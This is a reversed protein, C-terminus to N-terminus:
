KRPFNDIMVENRIIKHIKWRTVDSPDDIDLYVAKKYLAYFLYYGLNFNIKKMFRLLLPLVGIDISSESLRKEIQQLKQILEEIHNREEEFLTNDIINEYTETVIPTSFKFYLQKKPFEKLRIEYEGDYSYKDTPTRTITIRNFETNLFTKWKYVSDKHTLYNNYKVINKKYTTVYGMMKPADFMIASVTRHTADSVTFYIDDDIYHVFRPLDVISENGMKNAYFDYQSQIGNEILNNINQGIKRGDLRQNNTPFESLVSFFLEYISRNATCWGTDIGKIKNVDVLSPEKNENVKDYHFEYNKSSQMIREKMSEIHENSIGQKNMESILYSIEQGM